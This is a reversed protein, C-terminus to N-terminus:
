KRKVVTRTYEAQKLYQKYLEPYDASFRTTDFATRSCKSMRMIFNEPRYGELFNACIEDRLTDAYKTVRKREDEAVLYEAVKAEFDANGTIIEDPGSTLKELAEERDLAVSVKPPVNMLLNITYFKYTEKVLTDAFVPDFPVEFYHMEWDKDFLACVVAKRAGTTLMYHQVQTYYEVPIGCYEEGYWNAEGYESVWKIEVIINESYTQRKIDTPIAIGDCNARLWPTRQSVLIHEPHRVVYGKDAFYPVVYVNRILAELDKGKRIYVNDSLNEKCEGKKIKYLRLPSTYKSLGLVAAADSGGIGKSREASWDEENAYEILDIGPHDQLGYYNLLANM